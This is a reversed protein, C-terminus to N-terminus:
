SANNTDTRKYIKQFFLKLDRPTTLVIKIQDKQYESLLFDILERDINTALILIKLNKYFFFIKQLNLIKM